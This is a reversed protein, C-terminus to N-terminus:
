ATFASQFELPNVGTYQKFYKYFHPCDYFGCDIAVDFIPNGARLLTKSREIRRLMLFHKPTLGTEQKFLRIFKYKNIGYKSAIDNLSFDEEAIVEKIFLKLGENDEKNTKSVEYKKLLTSLTEILKKEFLAGFINPRKSLWILDSFIGTDYIVRDDFRINDSVGLHKIVTPPIYFTFFSNGITQDCPTAHLENSNTIAISGTPAIFSKNILETCFTNKLILSINYTEHKHLPFNVTCNQANLLEIGDLFPTKLYENINKKRSM